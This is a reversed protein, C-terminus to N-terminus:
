QLEELNRYTRTAVVRGAANFETIAMCIPTTVDIGDIKGYHELAGWVAEDLINTALDIATPADDTLLVPVDDMTCRISVLYSTKM